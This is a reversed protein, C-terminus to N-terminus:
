GSAPARSATSPRRRTRPTGHRITLSESHIQWSTCCPSTRGAEHRRRLDAPQAIQGPQALCLDVLARARDLPELLHELVGPM